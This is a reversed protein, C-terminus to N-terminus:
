HRPNNSAASKRSTYDDWIRQRLSDASEATLVTLDDRFLATWESVRRRIVYASDWHWRLEALEDDEPCLDETGNDIM